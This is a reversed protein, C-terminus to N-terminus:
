SAAVARRGKKWEELLNSRELEAAKMSAERVHGYGRVKRPWDVIRLALPKDEPGLECVLMNLDREYTELLSRDLRRELTNRFPDLWTGRVRRLASMMRFAKM